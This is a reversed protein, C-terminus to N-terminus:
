IDFEINSILYKYNNDQIITFIVFYGDALFHDIKVTVIYSGDALLKLTKMYTKDLLYFLQNKHSYQEVDYEKQLDETFIADLGIGGKGYLANVANNVLIKINANVTNDFNDNNDVHQFYRILSLSVIIFILVIIRKKM